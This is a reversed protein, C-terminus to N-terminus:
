KQEREREASESKAHHHTSPYMMGATLMRGLQSDMLFTPHSTHSHLWEDYGGLDVQLRSRAAEYVLLLTRKPLMDAEPLSPYGLSVLWDRKSRSVRHDPFLVCPSFADVRQTFLPLPDGAMKPLSECGPFMLPDPLDLVMIGGYPLPPWFVSAAASKVSVGVPHPFPFGRVPSNPDQKRVIGKEQLTAYHLMEKLQLTAEMPNMDFCGCPYDYSSLPTACREHGAIICCRPCSLPTMLPIRDYAGNGRGRLTWGTRPLDGAEQPTDEERQSDVIASPSTEQVNPPPPSPRSSWQGREAPIRRTAPSDPLWSGVHYAPPPYAPTVGESVAPSPGSPEVEAMQPDLGPQALKSVDAGQESTSPQTGDGCGSGTAHSPPQDQHATVTLEGRTAQDVIHDIAQQSVVVQLWPGTGPYAKAQRPEPSFSSPLYSLSIAERIEQLNSKKPKRPTEPIPCPIPNDPTTRGSDPNAPTSGGSASDYPTSTTPGYTQHPDLDESPDLQLKKKRFFDSGSYRAPGASWGRFRHRGASPSHLQLVAKHAMAAESTEEEDPTAISELFTTLDLHCISSLLSRCQRAVDEFPLQCTPDNMFKDFDFCPPFHSKPTLHSPLPSPNLDATIGFVALNAAHLALLRPHACEVATQPTLSTKITTVGEHGTTYVLRSTRCERPRSDAEYRSDFEAPRLLLLLERLDAPVVRPSEPRLVQIMYGTIFMLDSTVFAKHLPLSTPFLRLDTPTLINTMEDMVPLKESTPATPPMRKWEIDELLAAYSSINNVYHTPNPAMDNHHLLPLNRPLPVNYGVHDAGRNLPAGQYIMGAQPPPPPPDTLGTSKKIKMIERAHSRHRFYYYVLVAGIVAAAAISGWLITSTKFSMHDLQLNIASMSYSSGGFSSGPATVPGYTNKDGGSFIVLSIIVVAATIVAAVVLACICKPTLMTKPDAM